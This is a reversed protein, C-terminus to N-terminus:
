QRRSEASVRVGLEKALEPDILPLVENQFQSGVPILNIFYKMPYTKDADKENDSLDYYVEKRVANFLSGVKSLLGLSPIISGKTMEDASAPNIYFLLEDSIKNIGKAFYKYRNKSVDDDDDDPAIIKSAILLGLIGVVLSLEKMMNTVQSRILDQFEEQTIKLEKGTQLYYQQKKEELMQNIIALGKDTGLIVDRLDTVNKLGIQSLTAGFARFRGYEWDNTIENKTINKYRVSLQKPIWGKFMMFSNFITDRRYGMKDDNSMQGTLVRSYDVISMRFNALEEMSVGPIVLEDNEIKALKKLSKDSEKLENVRKDFSKELARRQEYSMGKRAIRDQAKLYQRINIIKGNDVISNDIMSLANALELKKEGYSNTVMMIDSFTWSNLYSVWSQKGAIRRQQIELPSEGSLPTITDILAREILDLGKGFPLTVKVNNKEFEGFNYMGGSNIFAQMQTGAWNAIGVLPKLGLALTRVFVDGTKLAKKTSIALDEVNEKNKSLKGVTSSLLINGLGDLNESLGYLYDDMIVQLVDANKNEDKNIKAKNGEFIINGKGDTVFSGKSQEVSHMTMLSFELDKASEYEMLSKIWMLGVKNLDTSLQTSVKNTKTFYKPISKRVEGTEDDVKSYLQEENPNILYMDKFFDKMESVIKGSQNMKQLTTAEILPFFSMGEKDLYGMGRAKENLATFFNWVKLANESKSMELYEKSYHGEEIMAQRYYYRFSYQDFGNFEESTIDLSNKLNRKRIERIEFDSQIDESFQTRDLEALGKEIIPDTLTKYQELNLNALLFEKNGKERAERIDNLFKSDLKKILRPGRDTLQGILSFASVGKSRAEEELPILIKSFDNAAKTFTLSILNKAKLMLKSALRIIKPSLKSSELFNKDLTSVAKEAELVEDVSEEDVIGEELAINVVYEKQIANIKDLERKIAASLRDFNNLLKLEDTSMSEKPIHSTYITNLESFKEASKQYEQLKQLKTLLEEKSITSFNVNDFEKITQTIDSLFTKAVNYIPFFNLKLHLNRISQSLEELKLKKSFKEEPSAYSTYMKEYLKRLSAIFSDVTENGTSEFDVPVPLLYLNTEQLSDVKGIEISNPILESQKNGKIAYKYNVIFPIMRTKRLQNRDVGLKYAIKTYEGMQKKWDKQKYFPIDDNRETNITTFKWDLIDVKVDPEGKANKVPEIAIFDVTSGMGGKVDLNAVQTELIFRTGDAYSSILEKAFLRIKSKLKEDIPSTIEIEQAVPLKYGDKGILNEGIYNELYKHGESGWEKKQDDIKQEEPTRKLDKKDKSTVTFELPKGDYTYHRKETENADVLNMRSDMDIFSDYIKNVKDNEEVQFFTEQSSIDSVTGGIEGQRINEATQKFIDIDSKKYMGKIFDLIADWMRQVLTRDEMSMLEPFEESGQSLNVVMESILKDVAEKKIKRINPKGDPLQYAKKGKYKQLVENYIKFRDIKSILETILKPNVQEIIATAVHVVEETIAVDEKGQTIAIIGKMLDALGNVGKINVDPNGKLYENLAVVNVGMQEAVKKMQEITEKSVKSAVVDETQSTVDALTPFKDLGNEEQWLSVKAALIIPNINSQEALAKFEQSSRNVCHAM